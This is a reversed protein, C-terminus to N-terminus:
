GRVPRMLEDGSVVSVALAAKQSSESRRQATVVIDTVGGDETAATTTAEQAMVPTAVFIASALASTSLLYKIM